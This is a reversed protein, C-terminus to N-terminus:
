RAGASRRVSRSQYESHRCHGDCEVSLRDLDAIQVAGRKMLKEEFATQLHVADGDLQISADDGAAEPLLHTKLRSVPQLDNVEDTATARAAHLSAAGM